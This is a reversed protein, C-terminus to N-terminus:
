GIELSCQDGSVQRQIMQLVGNAFQREIVFGFMDAHGRPQWMLATRLEDLNHLDYRRRALISDGPLSPYGGVMIRLPEGESHAVITTIKLWNGPLTLERFSNHTLM